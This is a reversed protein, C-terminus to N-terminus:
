SRVLGKAKATSSYLTTASVSRVTMTKSSCEHGIILGNQLLECPLCGERCFALKTRSANTAIARITNRRTFKLLAETEINFPRTNREARRKIIGAKNMPANIARLTRARRRIRVFVWVWAFLVDLGDQLPHGVFGHSQLFLSALAERTLRRRREFRRRIEDRPRDLPVAYRPHFVPRFGVVGHPRAVGLLYRFCSFYVLDICSEYIGYQFM